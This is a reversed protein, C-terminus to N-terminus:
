STIIRKIVPILNYSEVVNSKQCQNNLYSGFGLAGGNTLIKSSGFRLKCINLASVSTWVSSNYSETCTATVGISGGFALAVTNSLGSGGLYDRGTSMGAVTTWTSGNWSETCTCVFGGVALASTNTGAGALSYRATNM